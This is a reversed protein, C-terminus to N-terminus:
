YRKMIHSLASENDTQSQKPYPLCIVPSSPPLCIPRSEDFSQQAWKRRLEIVVRLVRPDSKDFELFCQADIKKSSTSFGKSLCTSLYRFSM